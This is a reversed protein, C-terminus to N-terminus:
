LRAQDIFGADILEDQASLIDGTGCYKSMIKSVEKNDFYFMRIGDILLLGLLHTPTLTGWLDDARPRCEFEGEIQKIMKDVGSMSKIHTDNCYFHGRVIAPAHELTTINTGSCSFMENVVSPVGKLSTISTCQVSFLGGIDGFQIPIDMISHINYLNVDGNVDVVSDPRITYNQIAYKDLWYKIEKHDTIM